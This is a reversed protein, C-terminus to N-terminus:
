QPWTGYTSAGSANTAARSGHSGSVWHRDPRGREVEHEALEGFGPKRRELAPNALRTIVRLAAVGEGQDLFRDLEEALEHRVFADARAVVGECGEGMVVEGEGR